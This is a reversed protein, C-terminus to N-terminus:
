LKLRVLKALQPVHGHRAESEKEIKGTSPDEDAGFNELDGLEKM